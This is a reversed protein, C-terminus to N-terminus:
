PLEGSRYWRIIVGYSSAPLAGSPPMVSGQGQVRQVAQAALSRTGNYDDFPLKPTSAPTGPSQSVHCSFCNAALFPKVQNM